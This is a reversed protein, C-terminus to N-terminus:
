IVSQRKRTASLRSLEEVIFNEKGYKQIALSLAYKKVQSFHELVRDHITRITQGVYVKNNVMNTLLYIYGEYMGTEKNYSM